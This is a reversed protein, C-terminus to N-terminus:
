QLPPQGTPPEAQPPQPPESSPSPEELAALLGDIGAIGIEMGKAKEADRRRKAEVAVSTAQAFFGRFEEASEDGIHTIRMRQLGNGARLTQVLQAISCINQSVEHQLDMPLVNCRLLHKYETRQREAISPDYSLEPEVRLMTGDTMLLLHAQDDPTLPLAYGLLERRGPDSQQELDFGRDTQTLAVKSSGRDILVLERGIGIAALKGVRRSFEARRSM